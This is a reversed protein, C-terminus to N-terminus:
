IDTSRWSELPYRRSILLEEVRSVTPSAAQVLGVHELTLIGNSAGLSYRVKVVIHGTLRNITIRESPVRLFGELDEKLRDLNGSTKQIRTQHLNGGRKAAKYVPLGNSATRSVHYPLLTASPRTQTTSPKPTSHSPSPKSAISRISCAAITMRTHALLPAAIANVHIMRTCHSRQPEHFKSRPGRLPGLLGFRRLTSPKPLQLPRLFPLALDKIAMTDRVGTLASQLHSIPSFDRCRFPRSRHLACVM